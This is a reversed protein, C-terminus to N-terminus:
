FSQNVGFYFQPTRDESSDLRYAVDFRAVTNRVGVVDIHLRLGYGISSKWQSYDEFVDDFHRGVEGIDYFLAGELRRWWALSILNVELETALLHRYEARFIASSQAAFDGLRIGRVGGEGGIDPVRQVPIDSGSIYAAKAQFALAHGRVISQVITFSLSSLQFNFDSGFGENSYEVSLGIGIGSSPSRPDRRTEFGIRATGSVITSRDEDFDLDAINERGRIFDNQETNIVGTELREFNLQGGVGIGFTRADLQSGFGYDYGIKLGRSQREYFADLTIPHDYRRFPLLTVGLAAAHNNGGNLDPSLRFRNLLVKIYNPFRNDGRFDDPNSQGPDVKVTVFISDRPFDLTVEEGRGDWVKKTTKGNSRSEVHVPDGIIKLREDASKRAITVLAKKEELKVKKIFLTEKPLPGLWVQFFLDWDKPNKDDSLFNKVLDRFRNLRKASPRQPKIAKRTLALVSKRGTRELIKHLIMRGKARKSSYRLFTDRVYDRPDLLQGFFLDSNAFRPARLIQDVTPIFSFFDLFGRLNKSTFYASQRKPLEKLLHFSLGSAIWWSDVREARDLASSLIFHELLVREIEKRHFQELFFAIHFLRDSYFIVNGRALMLRDRLPAQVFVIEDLFPKKKGAFLLDNFKGAVQVTAASLQEAREQDDGYVLIRPDKPTSRRDLIKGHAQVVSFSRGVFRSVQKGTVEQGNLLLTQSAPASARLRFRGLAPPAQCDFLGKEDREPVLPIVGGELVINEELRGFAGYREPVQLLFSLEATIEQGPALPPEFLLAKLYGKPFPTPQNVEHKPDLKSIIDLSLRTAGSRNSELQLGLGGPNHRKPYYRHFNRDSLDQHQKRFREPYCILPLRKLARSGNNKYRLIVTGSVQKHDESLSLKVDYDPMTEASVPEALVLLFLVIFRTRPLSLMSVKVPVFPRALFITDCCRHKQQYFAGSKQSGEERM